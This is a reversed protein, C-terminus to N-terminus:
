GCKEVAIQDGIKILGTLVPGAVSGVGPLFPLVTAAVTLLPKAQAWISCFDGGDTGTAVAVHAQFRANEAQHAQAAAVSATIIEAASETTISM